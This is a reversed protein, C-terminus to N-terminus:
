GDNVETFYQIEEWNNEGKDDKFCADAPIGTHVYMDVKETQYVKGVTFAGYGFDSGLNGNFKFYRAM